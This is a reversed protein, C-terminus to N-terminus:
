SKAAEEEAQAQIIVPVNYITFFACDCVTVPNCEGKAFFLPSLIALTRFATEKSIKASHWVRWKPATKDVTTVQIYASKNDIVLTIQTVKPNTIETVRRDILRYGM